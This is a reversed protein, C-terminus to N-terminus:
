GAKGETKVGAAFLMRPTNCQVKASCPRQLPSPDIVSQNAGARASAMLSVFGMTKTTSSLGSMRSASSPRNRDCPRSDVIGAPDDIRARRATLRDPADDPADSLGQQLLGLGIRDHRAEEV